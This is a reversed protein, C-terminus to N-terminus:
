TEDGDHMQEIGDPHLPRVEFDVDAICVGDGVKVSYPIDPPIAKGNVFLRCWYDTVFCEGNRYSVEVQKRHFYSKDIQIDADPNRGVIFLDGELVVFSHNGALDIFQLGTPM